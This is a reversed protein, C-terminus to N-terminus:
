CRFLFSLLTALVCSTISGHSKLNELRDTHLTGDGSVPRRATQDINVFMECPGAAELKPDSRACSSCALRTRGTAFRLDTPGANVYNGNSGAILIFAILLSEGPESHARNLKV